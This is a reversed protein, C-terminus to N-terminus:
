QVGVCLEHVSIGLIRAAQIDEIQRRCVAARRDEATVKKPARPTANLFATRINFNQSNISDTLHSM